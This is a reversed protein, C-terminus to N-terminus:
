DKHVKFPDLGRIGTILDPCKKLCVRGEESWEVWKHCPDSKKM